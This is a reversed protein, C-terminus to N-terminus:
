KIKSPAVDHVALFFTDILNMLDGLRRQQKQSLSYFIDHIARIVEESREKTFEGQAM